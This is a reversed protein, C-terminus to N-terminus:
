CCPLVLTRVWDRLKLPPHRRKRKEALEGLSNDSPLQFVLIEQRPNPLSLQRQEPRRRMISRCFAREQIPDLPLLFYRHKFQAANQLPTQTAETLLEGFVGLFFPCRPNKVLQGQNKGRELHLWRDHVLIPPVDNNCSLLVLDSIVPTAHTYTYKFMNMVIQRSQSRLKFPRRYIREVKSVVEDRLLTHVVQSRPGIYLHHHLGNHM